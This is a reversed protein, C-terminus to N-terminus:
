PLRKLRAFFMRLLAAVLVVLLLALVIIFMGSSIGGARAGIGGDM